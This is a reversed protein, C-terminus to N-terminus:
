QQIPGTDFGKKKKKKDGLAKMKELFSREKNVDLVKLVSQSYCKNM